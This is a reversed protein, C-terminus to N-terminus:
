RVLERGSKALVTRSEMASKMVSRQAEIDAIQKLYIAAAENAAQIRELITGLNENMGGVADIVGNDEPEDEGPLGPVEPPTVTLPLPRGFASIESASPALVTNAGPLTRNPVPPMGSTPVAPEIGLVANVIRTVGADYADVFDMLDYSEAQLTELYEILEGREMGIDTALQDLTIGFDEAVEEFTMQTAGAYDALNQALQRATARRQAAEQEALLQARRDYLAQLETSVVVGGGGSSGPTTQQDVVRVMSSVQRFLREYDTGSAMLRRGIQLATRADDESGTERVRQLALQLKERDGLPSLSDDLLLDEVARRTRDIFDEIADTASGVGDSAARSSAELAAIEEDLRTLPTGYLDEVLKLSAEKLAAIAKAMKRAAVETALALDEVRPGAMGAARALQDLQAINERLESGLGRIENVFSSSDMSELEERLGMVFEAYSLAAPILQALNNGTQLIIDNYQQQATYARNLYEGLELWLVVQAPTLTPLAATFAQRFAQAGGPGLLQEPDLGLGTAATTVSSEAQTLQALAREEATFFTDFYNQWLQTARDLGGAAEAIGAAFRVFEERALNLQVDSLELADELLRTSGVLRMYTDALSEGGISLEETLEYVETLSGDDGLLGFGRNIDAAIMVLFQAGEMLAEVDDRWQEAIASAERQVPSVIGDITAIIAEAAIRTAAEDQTAAEWSRGLVDVFMKSTTARGKSDFDQVTRIAINLLEPAEAGITRAADTMTRDVASFLAQAAEIAEPSDQLATTRWQRGRFLSRNRVETLNTETFAEGNEIGITSVMEDPKYRTGFLKGGSVADILALAAIIWGVVPIAAAAGAGGAVAGGAAAGAVGTAAGAGAGLLAGTAVTGLAYGAYGYAATAALSGGSGNSGGRNRFGYMAGGAAALYPAYTLAQQAAPSNGLWSLASSGVRSAGMNMLSGGGGGASGGGGGGGFASAISGMLGGGGGGTPLNMGFVANMMPNIFQLKIFEALMRKVMSKAINVMEDAFNDFKVESEVVFEAFANGIDEAGQVMIDRYVQQQEMQLKMQEISQVRARVEAELSNIYAPTLQINDERADAIAREMTEYVQRETETMQLMRAEADLGAIVRGRVDEELEANAINEEMQANYSTMARAINEYMAETPPGVDLLENMLKNLEEQLKANEELARLMPGSLTGSYRRTNLELQRLAASEDKIAKERQKQTRLAERAASERKREVDVVEKVVSKNKEEQRIAEALVLARDIIAQRAKEDEENAAKRSATYVVMADRSMGMTAIEENLKDIYKAGDDSFLVGNKLEANLDEAAGTLIGFVQAMNTMTVMVPEMSGPIIVGAESNLAVFEELESNAEELRKRTEEIQVAVGLGSGERTSSQALMKQYELLRELEARLDAAKKQAAEFNSVLENEEETQTGRNRMEQELRLREELRDNYASIARVEKMQAEEVRGLWSYLEYLAYVAGLIVTPWGGIISLFGAGLRSMTAFATAAQRQVDALAAATRGSAAAVDRQSTTYLLNQRTLEARAQGVGALVTTSRQEQELLKQLSDTNLLAARRTQGMALARAREAEVLAMNSRIQRTVETDGLKANELAVRAANRSAENQLLQQKAAMEAAQAQALTAAADARRAATAESMKSVFSAVAGLGRGALAIALATGVAIVSDALAKFNEALFAISKAIKQNLEAISTSTGIYNEAANRLQTFAREITLPIDGVGLALENFGALMAGVVLDTTLKGEYALERLRGTTIGMRGNALVLAGDVESLNKALIQTVKAGQEAVSRYEDGRLTGSSLGQSLQLIANKAEIAKAGSLIFANNIAESFRLSEQLATRQDRGASQLSRATRGILLGTSEFSAYTRQAVKFTEETAVTLQKQSTTTQRLQAQVNIFGDNFERIMGAFRTALQFSFVGAVITRTQEMTRRVSQMEREVTKRMESIARESQKASRSMERELLRAARGIDSEFKAIRAELDVSITGLSGGRAM